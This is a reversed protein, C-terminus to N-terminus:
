NHEWTFLRVGLLTLTDDNAEVEVTTGNVKVPDSYGVVALFRVNPFKQVHGDMFTAVLTAEPWVDRATLGAARMDEFTKM